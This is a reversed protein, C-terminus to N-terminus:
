PKAGKKTSTTQENDTTSEPAASNDDPTGRRRLFDAIIDDDHTTVPETGTPEPMEATLGVSRLLAILATLAKADGHLAKNVTTLVVGDLKSLSRTRNGVKVKIPENLAEEVITRVNRRRRKPRGKPYGCQGPKYRSHVPPRGYGVKYDPETSPSIEPKSLRPPRPRRAM